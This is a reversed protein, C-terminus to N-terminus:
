GIKKLHLIGTSIPVSVRNFSEPAPRELVSAFVYLFQKFTPSSMNKRFEIVITIYDSVDSNM